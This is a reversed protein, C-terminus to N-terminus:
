DSSHIEDHWYERCRMMAVFQSLPHCRNVARCTICSSRVPKALAPSSSGAWGCLPLGDRKNMTVGASSADHGRDAPNAPKAPKTEQGRM